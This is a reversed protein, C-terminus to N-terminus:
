VERLLRELFDLREKPHSNPTHNEEEYLRDLEEKLRCYEPYTLDPDGGGNLSLYEMYEADGEEVEKQKQVLENINEELKLWILLREKMEM